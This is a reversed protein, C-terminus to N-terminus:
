KFKETNIKEEPVGEQILMKNISKVMQPPGTIYYNKDNLEDLYKYLLKKDFPGFEYKWKNNEIYDIVPIFKFNKNKEAWNEFDRKFATQSETHNSYFLNIKHPLNEQTAYEVISRVPTIGLGGAIFVSHISKDQPLKLNGSPRSIFVESGVPINILYNIFASSGTRAAIMLENKNNPSSAISLPRSNSKNDNYGSDSITLHAYQGADFKYEIDRIDFIFSVTNEAIEKRDILTVPFDKM